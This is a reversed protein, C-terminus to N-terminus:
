DASPGRSPSQLGTRRWNLDNRDTKGSADRFVAWSVAPESLRFHLEVIKMWRGAGVDSQTLKQASEDVANSSFDM